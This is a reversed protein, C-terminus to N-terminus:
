LESSRIYFGKYLELIYKETMITSLLLLHDNECKSWENEEFALWWSTMKQTMKFLYNEEDNVLDYVPWNKPKPLSSKEEKTQPRFLFSCLLFLLHSENGSSLFSEVKKGSCWVAWGGPSPPLTATKGRKGRKLRRRRRWMLSPSFDRSIMRIKGPKGWGPRRFIQSFLTPTQFLYKGRPLVGDPLSDHHRDLRLDRNIQTQQNISDPNRICLRHYRNDQRKDAM